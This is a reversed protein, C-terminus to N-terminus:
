ELHGGHAVGPSVPAWHAQPGPPPLGHPGQSGSHTVAHATTRQQRTHQPLGHPHQRSFAYITTHPSPPPRPHFDCPGDNTPSSGGRALIASLRSRSLLAVGPPGRSETKGKRQRWSRWM